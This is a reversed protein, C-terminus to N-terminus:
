VGRQGLAPSGAPALSAGTDGAPLAAAPSRHAAPAAPLHRPGPPAEVGTAASATPDAPTAGEAPDPDQWAEITRPPPILGLAHARRWLEDLAALELGGLRYALNATFYTRAEAASIPVKEVAAAVVADLEAEGMALSARLMEGLRLTPDRRVADARVAWVAFVMPLGTLERWAAALDIIHYRERDVLLAPDGIILAADATALMAEADPAAPAVEPRIGYLGHLVIEVLAASTRSNSDLAVSRVEALPRRSVLLVSRVEHLAGICLGPVVRLGPIRQVEIAPILGVDLAGAALLDAVQAPPHSSAQVRDAFRGRLLGWALPWANLFDVIGVRLM